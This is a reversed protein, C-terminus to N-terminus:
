FFSFIKVRDSITLSFLTPIVDTWSSCCSNSGRLRSSLYDTMQFFSLLLLLLGGFSAGRLTDNGIFWLVNLCKKKRSIIKIIIIIIIIIFTIRKFM